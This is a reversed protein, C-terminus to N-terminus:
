TDSLGFCRNVATKFNTWCPLLSTGSATVAAPLILTGEWSSTAPNPHDIIAWGAPGLIIPGLLEIAKHGLQMPIVSADIARLSLEVSSWFDTLDM